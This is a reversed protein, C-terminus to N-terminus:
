QVQRCRCCFLNLMFRRFDPMMKLYIFFNGVNNLFIVHLLLIEVLHVTTKEAGNMEKFNSTKYILEHLFIFIIKSLVMTFAFLVLLFRLTKLAKKNREKSRSEQGEKLVKRMKFYLVILIVLFVFSIGIDINLVNEALFYMAADMDQQPFFNPLYILFSGILTALFFFFYRRKTWKTKFPHVISQYRLLSVFFLGFMSQLQLPTTLVDTNTLVQNYPIIELYDLHDPIETLCILWDIIALLLLLFHYTSMKKVNKRSSTIIYSIIFPNCLVGILKLTLGIYTNISNYIGLYEDIFGSGSGSFSENDYEVFTKNWWVEGSGSSFHDEGSM